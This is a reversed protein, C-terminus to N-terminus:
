TTWQYERLIQAPFCFKHEQHFAPNGIDEARSRDLFSFNFSHPNINKPLEKRARLEPSFIRSFKGNIQASRCLANDKGRISEQLVRALFPNLAHTINYYFKYCGLYISTHYTPNDVELLLGTTSLQGIGKCWVKFSLFFLAIYKM